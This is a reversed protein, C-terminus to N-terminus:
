KSVGLYKELLRELEEGRANNSVLMGNKDLLWVTPLAFIGYLQKYNDSNFGVGEFRQPGILSNKALLQKVEERKSEQDLCIGIMEFGKAHYKDYVAKLAPMEGVCPKCWTAWFDILVVKGRYEALDVKRGDLATFKMDVPIQKQKIKSAYLQENARKVLKNINENKYLPNKSDGYQDILKQWYSIVLEPAFTATGSLFDGARDIMSPQDSYKQIHANFRMWFPEWYSIAVGKWFDGELQTVHDNPTEDQKPLHNFRFVATRWDRCFLAWELAEKTETDTSPNLLVENAMENGKRIWEAEAALDLPFRRFYAHGYALGREKFKFYDSILQVNYRNLEDHVAPSINGVWPVSALNINLYFELAEHRRKDNPYKKWFNEALAAQMPRYKFMLQHTAVNDKEEQAKKYEESSQENQSNIFAKWDADAQLLLAAKKKFIEIDEEVMRIDKKIGSSKVLKLAQNFVAMAEEMNRKYAFMIVAQMSLHVSKLYPTGVEAVAKNAIQLYREYNFIPRFVAPPVLDQFQGNLYEWNGKKNEMLKQLCLDAATSDNLRLLTKFKSLLLEERNNDMGKMLASDIGNLMAKYDKKGALLEQHAKFAEWSHNLSDREKKRSDNLYDKRDFKGTSVLSEMAFDLEAKNGNTSIIKGQPDVLFFRPFGSQQLGWLERTKQDPVDIAISYDMKDGMFKVLDEIRKIYSLDKPNKPNSEATFVSIVEAKGSMRYKRSLETLHPIAARCPPCGVYGFDVLYVKGKEFTKVPKGKLWKIIHLPPAQDGVNISQANALYITGVVISMILLLKTKM